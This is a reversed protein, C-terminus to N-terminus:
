IYARKEEEPLSGMMWPPFKEKRMGVIASRVVAWAGHSARGRALMVCASRSSAHCTRMRSTCPEMAIDAKNWTATPNVPSCCVRELCPVRLTPPTPPTSLMVTHQKKHFKQSSNHAYM